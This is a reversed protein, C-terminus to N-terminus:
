QNWARLLARFAQNPGVQEQQGPQHAKGARNGPPLAEEGLVRRCRSCRRGSPLNVMGHHQGKTTLLGVLAKSPFKRGGTPLRRGKRCRRNM